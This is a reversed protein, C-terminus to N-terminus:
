TNQLYDLPLTIGIASYSWKCAFRFEDSDLKVLSLQFHLQFDTSTHWYTDVSEKM